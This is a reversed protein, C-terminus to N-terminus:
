RRATVTDLLAISPLKWEIEPLDDEPEAVVHLVAPEAPREPTARTTSHAVPEDAADEMEWAPMPEVAPPPTAFAATSRALASEKSQGNKKVNPAAPAASPSVLRELRNREAFAARAARIVTAILAGPSFHVTVILGIVLGAILLAWAGWHGVVQEVVQVIGHGTGGGAQGALDFLGVLSIVAVGGSVLDVPRPRPAKPWILYAGFALAVGVPVFWARGFSAMLWDHVGALISGADSAIALLSLLAVLILLVGAIERGQRPTLSPRAPAKRKSRTTRPRSSAARRAGHASRSSRTTTRRM